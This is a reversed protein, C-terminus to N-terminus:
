SPPQSSSRDLRSLRLLRWGVLTHWLLFCLGAAPIFLVALLEARGPMVAFAACYALDLANALIGVYATIRNFVGSRLMVVSAILGAAAILLLSLYGAAGPQAGPSTFRSIALLAQGAALLSDREAGPAAAQDSLALMSLATNSAGYIAIGLFASAAAVAIASPRARWLLAILALFMLGVLLYNVLDFFNLYALGLFPDRQLLAFWGAATAPPKQPSFLAIEASLNRRIVIGALLAAIGGVRYLM